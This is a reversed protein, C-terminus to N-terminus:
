AAKAHTRVARLVKTTAQAATRGNTRPMHHICGEVTCEHRQMPDLRDLLQRIRRMDIDPHANM